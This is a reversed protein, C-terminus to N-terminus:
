TWVIHGEDCGRHGEDCLATKLSACRVSTQWVGTRVTVKTVSYPVGLVFVQEGFM